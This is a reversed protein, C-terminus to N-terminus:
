RLMEDGISTAEKLHANEKSQTAAMVKEWLSCVNDVISSARRLRDTEWHERINYNRAEESTCHGSRM